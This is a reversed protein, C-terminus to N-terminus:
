AELHVLLRQYTCEKKDLLLAVVLPFLQGNMKAHIAYIHGVVAPAIGSTGDTWLETAYFLRTVWFIFWKNESYASHSECYLCFYILQQFLLLENVRL